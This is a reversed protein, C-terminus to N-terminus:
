SNRHQADSQIHYNSMCNIAPIDRFGVRIDVIIAVHLCVLKAKNQNNENLLTRVIRRTEGPTEYWVGVANQRTDQGWDKEEQESNTDDYRLCVLHCQLPFEVIINESAMM